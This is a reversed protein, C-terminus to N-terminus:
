RRGDDDVGYLRAMLQSVLGGVPLSVGAKRALQLAWALDKEAINMHGRMLEQVPESHRADEPIKHTGLYTQMLPTIQGNSAGAEEFVGDPLGVAKSLQYSEYAAAWQIYTLLNICLKLKAGCGLPGAHIIKVASTEFIPQAKALTAADGGVLYTMQQQQARAAGGTVCADLVSIGRSTAEGALAIATEPLISSHIAVITGSPAGALVGDDGLMVARVHDDEPVCIGIVDSAAGVERPSSAAKAGRAALERVPADVIDYLTTEFGATVLNAALPKGQNGLGIFGARLTM